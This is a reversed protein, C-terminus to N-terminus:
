LVVRLARLATMPQSVCFVSWDGPLVRHVRRLTTVVEHHFTLIVVADGTVFRPKRSRSRTKPGNSRHTGGIRVSHEM